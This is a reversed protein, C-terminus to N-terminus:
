SYISDFVGDFICWIVAKQIDSKTTSDIELLDRRCYPCTASKKVWMTLCEEHFIHGCVRGRTASEGVCLDGLCISCCNCDQDCSPRDDEHEDVVVYTDTALDKLNIARKPGHYQGASWHPLLIHMSVYFCVLGVSLASEISGMGFLTAFPWLVIGIGGFLALGFLFGFIHLSVMCPVYWSLM